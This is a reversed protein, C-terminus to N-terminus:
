DVFGILAKTNGKSNKQTHSFTLLASVCDIIYIRSSNELKQYIKKDGIIIM